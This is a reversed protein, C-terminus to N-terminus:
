QVKERCFAPFHHSQYNKQAAARYDAEGLIQCRLKELALWQCLLGWRRYEESVTEIQRDLKKQDREILSAVALLAAGARRPSEPSPAAPAQTAAGARREKAHRRAETSNM